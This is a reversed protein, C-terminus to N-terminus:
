SSSLSIAEFHFPVANFIVKLCGSWFALAIRSVPFLKRDISNGRLDEGFEM